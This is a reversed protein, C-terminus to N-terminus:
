KTKWADIPGILRALPQVQEPRAAYAKDIYERLSKVKHDRLM